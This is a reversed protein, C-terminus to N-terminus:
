MLDDLRKRIVARSCEWQLGCKFVFLAFVTTLCLGRVQSMPETPSKSSIRQLAEERFRLRLCDDPMVATEFIWAQEGFVGVPNKAQHHGLLKSSVHQSFIKVLVKRKWRKSASKTWGYVKMVTLWRFSWLCSTRKMGSFVLSVLARWVKIISCSPVLHVKRWGSTYEARDEFPRFTGSGKFFGEPLYIIRKTAVWRPNKYFLATAFSAAFSAPSSESSVIVLLSNKLCKCGWSMQIQESLESEDPAWLTEM